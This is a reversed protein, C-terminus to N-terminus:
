LPAFHQERSQSAKFVVTVPGAPAMVRVRVTMTMAMHDALRETRGDVPLAASMEAETQGLEVTSGEPLDPISAPNLDLTLRARVDLCEAGDVRTTGQLWAEGSLNRADVDNDEKLDQTALAADIPWRAGVLQPAATGFIEDDTAGGLGVRLLSQLAKRAEKGAPAGDVLLVADAEKAANTVDITRQALAQGDLTFETVDFHSRTPRGKEDIAVVQQVADLHLVRHVHEDRSAAKDASFSTDNDEVQQVVVQTRDGVHSPRSLHISYATPSSAPAQVPAGSASAGCATLLLGALPIKTV